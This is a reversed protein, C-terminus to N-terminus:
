SEPAGNDLWCKISQKEEETLQTASAPPMIKLEFVHTQIRGEDAKKKIGTYTTFDGTTAGAVHCGSIACKTDVITKIAGNYTKRCVDTTKTETEKKSCAILLLCCLSVLISRKM